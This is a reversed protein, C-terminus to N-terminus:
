LLIGEFAGFDSTNRPKRSPIAQAMTIPPDATNGSGPVHRMSPATKGRRRRLTDLRGNRGTGLRATLSAKVM